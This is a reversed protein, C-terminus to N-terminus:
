LADRVRAAVALSTGAVRAYVNSGNARVLLGPRKRSGVGAEVVRDTGQGAPLRGSYPAMREAGDLTEKAGVALRATRTGLGLHSATGRRRVFADPSADDDLFDGGTPTRSLYAPDVFYSQRTARPLGALGPPDDRLVFGHFGAFAGGDMSLRWQGARASAAKGPAPQTGAVTLRLSQWNGIETRHLAAIAASDDRVIWVEDTEIHLDVSVGAPSSLTFDRAGSGQWHLELTNPTPDQFPIQWILPRDPSIGDAPLRVHQRAQLLNGTPVYLTTDGGARGALSAELAEHVPDSHSGSEPSPGGLYAYSLAIHMPGSVGAALKCAQDVAHAAVGRLVDGSRDLFAASPLEVALARAGAGASFIVDAMQTGHMADRPGLSVGNEGKAYASAPFAEALAHVVAANGSNDFLACYGAIEAPGLLHTLVGGAADIGLFAVAEFVSTGGRRFAPQWFAIGVDIIAAVPGAGGIPALAPAAGVPVEPVPPGILLQGGSAGAVPQAAALAAPGITASPEGSSMPLLARTRTDDGRVYALGLPLFNRPLEAGAALRTAILPGSM